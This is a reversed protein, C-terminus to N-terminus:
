FLGASVEELLDDVMSKAVLYLITGVAGALLGRVILSSGLHIGDVWTSDRAM